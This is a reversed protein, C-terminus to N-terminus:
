QELLAVTEGMKIKGGAFFGSRRRGSEERNENRIGAQLVTRRHQGMELRNTAKTRPESPFFLYVNSIHTSARGEETECVRRGWRHNTAAFAQIDGPRSLRQRSSWCM